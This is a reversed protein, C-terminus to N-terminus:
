KNMMQAKVGIAGVIADDEDLLATIIIM